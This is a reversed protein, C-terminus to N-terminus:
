QQLCESISAVLDAAEQIAGPDKAKLRQGLGQLYDKARVPDTFAVSLKEDSIACSVAKAAKQDCSTLLIVPLLLMVVLKRM